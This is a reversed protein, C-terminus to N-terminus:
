ILSSFDYLSFILVNLKLREVKNFRSTEEKFDKGLFTLITFLKIIGKLIFKKSLIKLVIKSWRYITLTM